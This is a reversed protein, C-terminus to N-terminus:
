YNGTPFKIVLEVRGAVGIKDYAHSLYQEVTSEKLNLRAAIEKNRLGQTALDAAQKERPTLMGDSDYSM